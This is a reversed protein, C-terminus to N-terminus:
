ALGYRAVISKRPPRTRAWAVPSRAGLCRFESEGDGLEHVLLAVVRRGLGWVTPGFLILCHFPDNSIHAISMPRCMLNERVLSTFHVSARPVHLLRSGLKTGIRAWLRRASSEVQSDSMRTGIRLRGATVRGTPLTLAGSFADADNPDFWGCSERRNINSEECRVTLRGPSVIMPQRCISVQEIRLRRRCALNYSNDDDDDALAVLNFKKGQLKSM